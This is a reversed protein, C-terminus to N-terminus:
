RPQYRQANQLFRTSSTRNAKIPQDSARARVLLSQAGSWAVTDDFAVLHTQRARCPIALSPFASALSPETWGRTPQWVPEGRHWYAKGSGLCGTAVFGAKRIDIPKGTLYASLPRHPVDCAGFRAREQESLREYLEKRRERELLALAPEDQADAGSGLWLHQDTEQWTSWDQVGDPFLESSEFTWAQGFLAISLQAASVAAAALHTSLGGGGYQGRGWVDIGCFVNSPALAPIESGALLRQPTRTSHSLERSDAALDPPSWHYNTFIAGCADAFGRNLDNLRNQWRLAGTSTVADYWIVEGGPIRRRLESSFYEAWAQLAVAHERAHSRGHMGLDIEVNLLYGDFRHCIALDILQDAHEISVTAFPNDRRANTRLLRSSRENSGQVLKRADEQGAEHEFVLVGLVKTDRKHAAAILSAPPISVRHHSFYIFIDILHWYHFVYDRRDLQETYGGRFDHCVLTRPVSPDYARATQYSDLHEVPAHTAHWAALDDLSDFYAATM